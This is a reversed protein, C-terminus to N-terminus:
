SNSVRITFKFFAFNVDRRQVIDSELGILIGKGLLISLPYFDVPISVVPPLESAHEPPTSRLVDQVDTWVKVENGDFTWLSDRLGHGEDRGLDEGTLGNTAAGPVQLSGTFQQDRM